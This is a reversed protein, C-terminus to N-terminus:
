PVVDGTDGDFRDFLNEGSPGEIHGLKTGKYDQIRTIAVKSVGGSVWCVFANKGDVARVVRRSLRTRPWINEYPKVEGGASEGSTAFLVTENPKEVTALPYGMWHGYSTMKRSLFFGNYGYGFTTPRSRPPVTSVMEMPSGRYSFTPDNLIRQADQLYPGLIGEKLAQEPDGAGYGYCWERNEGQSEDFIAHPVMQSDHEASYAMAALGLQRLNSLCQTEKSRQFVTKGAMTGFAFLVAIIAVSVLLEVLTFGQKALFLQPKNPFRM